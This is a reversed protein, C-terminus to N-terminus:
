RPWLWGFTGGMLMGFILADVARLCWTKWPVSFWISDQLSGFAYAMFGVCGVVRFVTLYPVGNGLAHWGVYATFFSVVVNGILSLVMTKGMNMKGPKMITVMGTPGEAMKAMFEPSRRAAADPPFPFMYLGASWSGAKIAERVQDANPLGKWEKNHFPLMTWSIASAIFVFVASVLIPEWLLAAFHM